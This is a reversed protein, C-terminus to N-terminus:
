ALAAILMKGVHVYLTTTAFASLLMVSMGALRWPANDDWEKQYAAEIPDPVPM